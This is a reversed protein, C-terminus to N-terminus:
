ELNLVNSMDEIMLETATVGGMAIYWAFFNLSRVHGNQFARTQKVLDNNFSEITRTSKRNSLKDRDLIFLYEPNVERIFEFSILDGHTSEKLEQEVAAVFGFDVYISAVISQTSFATVNDGAGMVTLAKKPHKKNHERIKKFKADLRTITNEVKDSVDFLQGIHRWQKQTSEWYGDKLDPTLIITPAIDSLEDYKPASRPGALIVDPKVTFIKEFDPEFLTGASVYPAQSYKKLYDPQYDFNVAVPDIGFYDLMDLVGAGIVVVHRPNKAVTTTGMEHEITVPTAHVGSSFIVFIILSKFLTKM